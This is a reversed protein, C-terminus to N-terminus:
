YVLLVVTVFWVLLGVVVSWIGCFGCLLCVFCLVEAVWVRGCAVRWYGALLCLLVCYRWMLCNGFVFCYCSCAISMLLSVSVVLDVLRLLGVIVVSNVANM